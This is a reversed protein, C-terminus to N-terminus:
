SDVDTYLLPPPRSAGRGAPRDAAASVTAWLFTVSQIMVPKLGYTFLGWTTSQQKNLKMTTSHHPFNHLNTCESILLLYSTNLM